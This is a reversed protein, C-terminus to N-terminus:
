ESILNRYIHVTDGAYSFEKKLVTEPMEPAPLGSGIILKKNEIKRIEDWTGEDFFSQLLRAGGEVLVSQIKLQYLANVVQHVLSVEETIQYFFLSENEEHKVRNFIITRQRGDFLKLSSPLRLDMDIVLRLPSAGPWLRATLEPDDYFATNTGVLIAAEESRWKHVLRNVYENSIFLRQAAADNMIEGKPVPFAIKGDATQAWKLIVYPRHEAHFTFFRKNLEKCENELVGTRVKVGAARLKEIGGGSVKKNPDHCGIIVEPIKNRIIFDTCPPTKGFHCCPELSVYLTSRAIFERDNEKVSAICNVEAHAEGYQQHWSEGIIKKEYVLVAGVMPNPAVHGAGFKALELCRYMFFEHTLLRGTRYAPRSNPTM